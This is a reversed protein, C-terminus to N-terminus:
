LWVIILEVLEIVIVSVVSLIGRFHVFHILLHVIGFLVLQLLLWILESDLLKLLLHHYSCVISAILLVRNTLHSTLM